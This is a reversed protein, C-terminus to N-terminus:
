GDLRAVTRAVLEPVGPACDDPLDAVDFWAVDHSEDSVRPAVETVAVAFQLDLHWDGVGCPAPHRGLWVPVPDLRGTLGTEEELERLAAEQISTDGVEIHGGPQVWTHMRGHLVLCARGTAADIPVASATFHAPQGSRWLLTADGAMHAWTAREWRQRPSADPALSIATQLSDLLRHRAANQPSTSM